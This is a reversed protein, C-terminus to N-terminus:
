KKAEFKGATGLAEVFDKELWAKAKADGKLHEDWFATTSQKILGHIKTERDSPNAARASFTMHTAGDFIVLCTGPVTSNDFPIRRDAAKVNGLNLPADDLTGTMHFVPVKMSGFVVKQDGREAPQPSMAIAATVRPDALTVRGTEGDTEGAIMLTTAAGYSHGAMGVHKMDLKGKFPALTKDDLTGRNAEDMHTIIFRVDQVRRLATQVNIVTPVDSTTAAGRLAGVVSATDSGAHTPLVVVYGQSAWHEAWMSYGDRSGGLGHSFVILPLPEKADAVSRPHYMKIPVTDDTRSVDKWDALLSVVAYPGLDPKYPEAASALRTALLLGLVIGAARLLPNGSLRNPNLTV